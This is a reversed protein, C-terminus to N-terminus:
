SGPRPFTDELDRVVKRRLEAVTEFIATINEDPVKEDMNICCVGTLWPNASESVLRVIADHIEAPTQDILEVPSLRVNLFTRPLHERLVRVDGGWGVDLFDLHPLRGFAAAFRHPDKGCFHVGFPRHQRSWEHDAGALLREYHDVSIMTHSCESHLFVPPAVHRVNRNVSISTTGTESAVFGVFREIVTQIQHFFQRTQAPTDLMDTFIAHGRLDLAVNLIGSWNVDGCVYGFRAKLADVLAVFEDGAANKGVVDPSLTLTDRNACVVQPPQDEIYDVRCGLMEQILFGAALHVAGVEPRDEGHHEGLGYEGWKEYLVQEMKRESEVRKLPHFFFDRDFTLGANLHWWAPALVIDVPLISNELLDNREYLDM